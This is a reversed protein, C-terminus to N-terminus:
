RANNPINNTGVLPAEAFAMYIYDGTGNCDSAQNRWKFGNSLFDFGDTTQEASSANAYNLNLTENGYATRKNDRLQWGGTGSTKKVMIFAPSFGTYIFAGDANNNGTYSGFKSYGQKEAFCYAIYTASNTNTAGFVQNLQILTSSPTCWAGSASDKAGTTNLTLYHGTGMTKQYVIWNNSSDTRKFLIMAPEVGLGHGITANATGNGTYKVISFGSTTNASVTSSISGDTNASGTGNAKWLWTCPTGTSTDLQASAGYNFGNSTFATFDNSGNGTLGTSSNNSQLYKTVGRIADFLGHDGVSARNKFWIFDPQFSVDSISGAGSASYTRIDFYDTSKNITTYAM